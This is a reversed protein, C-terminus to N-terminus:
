RQLAFVVGPCQIWCYSALMRWRHKHWRHKVKSFYNMGPWFATVLGFQYFVTIERLTFSLVYPFENIAPKKVLLLHPWFCVFLWCVTMLHLDEFINQMQENRVRAKKIRFKCDGFSAKKGLQRSIGPRQKSKRVKELWKCNKGHVLLSTCFRKGNEVTIWIHM